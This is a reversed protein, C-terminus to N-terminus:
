GETIRQHEEELKEADITVINLKKNRRLLKLGVFSAISFLIWFKHKEIFLGVACLAMVVLMLLIYAASIIMYAIGDM